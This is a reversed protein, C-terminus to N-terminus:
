KVIIIAITIIVIVFGTEGIRYTVSTIIKLKELIGVVEISERITWTVKENKRGYFEISKWTYNLRQSGSTSDGM